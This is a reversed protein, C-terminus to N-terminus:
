GGNIIRVEYPANKNNFLSHLHSVLDIVEGSVFDIYINCYSCYIVSGGYEDQSDQMEQEGDVMDGVLTGSCHPCFMDWPM